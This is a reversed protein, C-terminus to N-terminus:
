AETPQTCPDDGMKVIKRDHKWDGLEFTGGLDLLLHSMEPVDECLFQANSECIEGDRALDLLSMYFIEVNETAREVKDPIGNAKMWDSIVEFTAAALALLFEKSYLRGIRTMEQDKIQRVQTSVEDLNKKLATYEKIAEKIEDLTKYLKQQDDLQTEQPTAKENM